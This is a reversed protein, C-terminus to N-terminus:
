SSSNRRLYELYSPVGRTGNDHGMAVQGNGHMAQVVDALFADVNQEVSAGRTIAQPAENGSRSLPLVSETSPLNVLPQTRLDAEESSGLLM